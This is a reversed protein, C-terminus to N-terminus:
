VSKCEGTLVKILDKGKVFYRNLVKRSPINGKKVNNLIATYSFGSIKTVEHLNYDNDPNVTNILEDFNM